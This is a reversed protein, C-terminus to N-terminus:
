LWVLRAVEEALDAIGIVGEGIDLRHPPTKRMYLGMRWAAPSIWGRLCVPLRM